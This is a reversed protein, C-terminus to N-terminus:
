SGIREAVPQWGPELMMNHGLHSFLEANTQCTRTLASVDEDVRSGGHEGGLVLLPTTVADAKLVALMQDIGTRSSERALRATCSEVIQEPTHACCMSERVLAPTSVVAGSDGVDHRAFLVM